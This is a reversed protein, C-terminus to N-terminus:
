HLNIENHLYYQIQCVAETYHNVQSVTVLLPVAYAKM